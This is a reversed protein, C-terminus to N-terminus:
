FGSPTGLVAPPPPPPPALPANATTALAQVAFVSQVIVCLRFVLFTITESMSWVVPRDTSTLQVAAVTLVIVNVVPDSSVNSPATDLPPEPGAPAVPAVPAVPEAPPVIVTVLSPLVPVVVFKSALILELPFATSAVVVSVVIGTYRQM